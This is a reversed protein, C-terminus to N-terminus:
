PRDLILALSQHLDDSSVVRPERLQFLVQHALVFRATVVLKRGALLTGKPLHLAFPIPVKWGSRVVQEALVEGAPSKSVDLLQVQLEVGKALPMKELYTAAGEFIIAPPLSDGLKRMLPSAQFMLAAGNFDLACIFRFPVTTGDRRRQYGTGTVTASIPRTGVTDDLRERTLWPVGDLGLSVFAPDAARTETGLMGACRSLAPSSIAGADQADASGAVFCVMLFASSARRARNWAPV